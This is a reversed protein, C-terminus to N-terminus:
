PAGGETEIWRVVYGQATVSGHNVTGEPATFMEFRVIADGGMARAEARMKEVCGNGDALERFEAFGGAIQRSSLQGLAIYSRQPEGRVIVIPHDAPRPPYLETSLQTRSVTVGSCGAVVSVVVLCTAILSRARM